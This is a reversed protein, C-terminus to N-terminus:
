PQDLLREGRADPVKIRDPNAERWANCREIMRDVAAVQEADAGLEVCKERYFPLTLAFATDKALFACWEDEPVHAGNKYKFIEGYFKADLKSM